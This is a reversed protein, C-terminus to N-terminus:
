NGTLLFYLGTLIKQTPAQKSRTVKNMSPNWKWITAYGKRQGEGAYKLKNLWKSVM